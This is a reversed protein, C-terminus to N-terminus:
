ITQKLNKRYTNLGQKMNEDSLPCFPLVMKMNFNVLATPARQLPGRRGPGMEFHIQYLAAQISLPDYM